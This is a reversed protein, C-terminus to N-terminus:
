ILEQMGLTDCWNPKEFDRAVIAVVKKFPYTKLGKITEPLVEEFSKAVVVADVNFM